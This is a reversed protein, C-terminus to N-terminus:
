RRSAMIECARPVSAGCSRPGRTLMYLEIQCAFSGPDAACPTTDNYAPRTSACGALALLILAAATQNM